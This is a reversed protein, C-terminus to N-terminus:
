ERGTRAVAVPAEAPTKVDDHSAKMDELDKQVVALAETMANVQATLTTNQMVLRGILLETERRITKALADDAM